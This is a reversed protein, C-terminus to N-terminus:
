PTEKKAAAKAPKVPAEVEAPETDDTTDDAPKVQWGSQEYVEVSGPDVLMQGPMGPHVLPVLGPRDTEARKAVTAVEVVSALDRDTLGYHNAASIAAELTKDM